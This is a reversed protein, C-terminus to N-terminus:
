PSTDCPREVMSHLLSLKLLAGPPALSVCQSRTVCQRLVIHFVNETYRKWEASLAVLAIERASWLTEGWHCACIAYWPRYWFKKHDNSLPNSTEPCFCIPDWQMILLCLPISNGKAWFRGNGQTVVMLKQYRSLRFGFDNNWMKYKLHHFFQVFSGHTVWVPLYLIIWIMSRPMWRFLYSRRSYTDLIYTWFSNM